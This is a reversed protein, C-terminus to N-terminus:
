QGGAEKLMAAYAEATIESGRSFGHKRLWAEFGAKDGGHDKWLDKLQTFQAATINRTVAPSSGAITEERACRESVSPKEADASEAVDGLDKKMGRENAPAYRGPMLLERTAEEADDPGGGIPTVGPAPLMRAGQQAAMLKAQTAEVPSGDVTFTVIPYRRKKAPNTKETLQMTFPLGFYHPQIGLQAHIGDVFDFMGLAAEGSQSSSTDFEALLPPFGDLRLFFQLRTHPKCIPKDGARFECLENPCKITEYGEGKWRQAEIGNGFCWFKNGAVVKGNPDSFAHLRREICGGAGTKVDAGLVAKIVRRKDAPQANWAAFAPHERRARKGNPDDMSTLYDMIFFGDKDTPNGKGIFRGQADKRVDKRGVTVMAAPFIRGKQGDITTYVPLQKM